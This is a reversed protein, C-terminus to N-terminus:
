HQAILSDLHPQVETNDQLQHQAIIHDILHQYQQLSLVNQYRVVSILQTLFWQVDQVWTTTLKVDLVFVCIRTLISIVELCNCLGVLFPYIETSLM